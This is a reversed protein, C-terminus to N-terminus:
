VVKSFETKKEFIIWEDEYFYMDPVGKFISAPVWGSIGPVQVEGTYRPTSAEPEPVAPYHADFEDQSLIKFKIRTVM